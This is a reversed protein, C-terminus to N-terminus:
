LPIVEDIVPIDIRIETGKGPISSLHFDMNEHFFLRLRQYVNNMGISQDEISQKKELLQLIEKQREYEIGKGNDSITCIMRNNNKIIRIDVKGENLTEILGHNIANEVLPQLILCPIQLGTLTEDVDLSFSIRDEFRLRQIYLYDELNQLEDKLSVTKHFTELNYRLMSSMAELISSTKEAEELFAMQTIMNLTNFLFHPNIRSQLAKLETEKIISDMKQISLEEMLLKQELEKQHSLQGIQNQITNIMKNFALTMIKLEDESVVPVPEIDMNGNAVQEAAKTLESIPRALSRILVSIILFCVFMILGLVLLNLFLNQRNNRSSNTQLIEMDRMIVTFVNKFNNKIILVLKITEVFHENALILEGDL